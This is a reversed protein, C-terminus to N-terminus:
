QNVHGSHARTFTRCMPYFSFSRIQPQRLALYLVPIRFYSLLFSNILLFSPFLAFSKITLSKRFKLLTFLATVHLLRVHIFPGHIYPCLLILLQCQFCHYNRIIQGYRYKLGIYFVIVRHRVGVHVM